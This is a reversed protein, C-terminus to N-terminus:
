GAGVELNESPDDWRPRGKKNLVPRTVM